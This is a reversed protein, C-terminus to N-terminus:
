LPTLRHRTRTKKSRTRPKRRTETQLTMWKSPKSLSQRPATCWKTKKTEAVVVVLRLNGSKRPSASRLPDVNLLLPELLKRTRPNCQPKMKTMKTLQLRLVKTLMRLHKLRNRLRRPRRLVLQRKLPMTTPTKSRKRLRVMLTPMLKLKKKNLRCKKLRRASDSRKPLKERKVVSKSSLRESRKSLPVSLRVSSSRSVANVSSASASPLRKSVSRSLMRRPVLRLPKGNTSKLVKM